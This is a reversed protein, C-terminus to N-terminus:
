NSATAIGPQLVIQQEDGTRVGQYFNRLAAYYKPDMLLVDISLSRTIHLKGNDNELKLNYAISPNGQKQPAPLSTVKWGAPLQVTIDDIKQFPFEFYIAHARNAHEFVHKEQGSFLAAPFLVRRGASSVWGPVKLNFEAVLDSAPDDWGPHNTLEVNIGTPIYEQVQDELFKKREAQDENREESRRVMAELGAYRVTLKGELDGTDSLKLQATREVRSVSAEPVPTRVWTTTDKELRLGEVGTEAWPLQGFPAFRSGPDCYIDKGNLKVQVVNSTLRSSDLLKPNFFYHARDSVMIGHADFGAARVLGLYLWTLQMGNGHGRKWVDTANNSNKEKERKEEQETKEVEYSTNRLQQVRAYIKQLKVEPPDAPVVIQSVAQELASRKGIWSEVNDYMQKSVRKWYADGDKDVDDSYIFDVRSKLENQPPMFDETQFPPVNFAELRIVRDTGERPQATGPPLRQWTWLVRRRSDPELSFKVHKTFLEDSLIWHSNYIYEPYNYTYYYEIISGVQVDPLTFTKALYKLGKAKVISKEFAKGEFNVVSGDPRITRANLQVVDNVNKVFPIEVDAYKRGEENLIKIRVYNFEHSTSGNDDRDVQRYLIIAAAGAAAPDSKMTLENRDIPAWDTGAILRPPTSFLFCSLFIAPLFARRGAARYCM